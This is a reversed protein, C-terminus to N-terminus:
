IHKIKGKRLGQLLKLDRNAESPLSNGRRRSNKPRCIQKRGLWNEILKARIASNRSSKHHIIHSQSTIIVDHHKSICKRYMSHDYRYERANESMESVM